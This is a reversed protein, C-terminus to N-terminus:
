IRLRRSDFPQFGVPWDRLNLRWSCIRIWSRSGPRRTRAAADIMIFQHGGFVQNRYWFRNADVWRPNVTVGSTLKEAHWPLFQEARAYESASVSEPQYPRSQAAAGPPLAAFALVALALPTLAPAPLAPAPLAVLSPRRISRRKM